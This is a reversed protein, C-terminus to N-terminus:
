TPGDRPPVVTMWATHREIVDLELLEVPRKYRPQIDHMNM